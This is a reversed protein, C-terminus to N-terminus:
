KKCLVERWSQKNFKFPHLEMEPLRATNFVACTMPPLALEKWGGDDKLAVALHFAESSYIIARLKPNYKLSLPKNGKLIIIRQPALLSTVVASIQGRCHRLSHVFNRVKIEGDPAHRDALRAILESDVEAFRNLRFKRFLKDANFITGNATALCCGSKIPHGNSMKEVSGVTAFRAHGMLLTTKNSLDRLVDRCELTRVFHSAKVPRKLLRYGGNNEILAIGSAHRGRFENLALLRMFTFRLNDLKDQRRRCNGAFILGAQGCM